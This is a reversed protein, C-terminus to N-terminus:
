FIIKGEEVETKAKNNKFHPRLRWQILATLLAVILDDIPGPFDFPSIFYIVCLGWLLIRLRRRM